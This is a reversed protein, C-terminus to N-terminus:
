IVLRFEEVEQATESRGSIKVVDGRKAGIWVLQPDEQSNIKPFMKTDLILRKCLAKVEDPDAIEHLFSSESKPLNIIFYEYTYAFISLDEDVQYENIKKNIYSSIKQETIFLVETGKKNKILRNILKKFEDTKKEYKSNPQILFIFIQKDKETGEILIYQFTNIMTSYKESSLFKYDTKIGRYKIFSELNNYVIMDAPENM